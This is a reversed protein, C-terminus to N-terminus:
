RSHSLRWMCLKRAEVAKTAGAWDVNGTLLLEQEVRLERFLLVVDVAPGIMGLNRCQPFLGLDFRSLTLSM